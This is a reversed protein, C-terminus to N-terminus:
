PKQFILKITTTGDDNKYNEDKVLDLGGLKANAEIESADLNQMVVVPQYVIVECSAGSKLARAINSMAKGNLCDSKSNAVVAKDFVSSDLCDANVLGNPYIVFAGDDDEHDNKGDVYLTKSM